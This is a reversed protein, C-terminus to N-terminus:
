LQTQKSDLLIMKYFDIINAIENHTYFCKIFKNRGWLSINKIIDINKIYYDLKNYWNTDDALFGYNNNYAPVNSTISTVGVLLSEMLKVHSKCNNFKNQLLPILMIDVNNIYKYLEKHECISNDITIRDNCEVLEKPFELLGKIYMNINKHEKFLRLLAPIVIEFDKDHSKSGSFYGLTITDKKTKEQILKESLELEQANITNEVKFAVKGYSRVLDCLVSSPSTFYNCKLLAERFEKIGTLYDKIQEEKTAGYAIAKGEKCLQYTPDDEIYAMDFILDDCDYVLPIKRAKCEDIIFKVNDKYRERYIIVIDSKFIKELYYKNSIDITRYFVNCNIGKEILGEVVNQVRYLACPNTPRVGCLFSVSKLSSSGKKIAKHEYLQTM